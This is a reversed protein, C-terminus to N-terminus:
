ATPRPFNQICYWRRFRHPFHAHSKPLPRRLLFPQEQRPFPIAWQASVYFGSLHVRVKGLASDGGLSGSLSPGVLHVSSAYPNMLQLFSWLGGPTTKCITCLLTTALRDAGTQGASSNYVGFEPCLGMTETDRQPWTDRQYAEQPLRWTCFHTCHLKRRVLSSFLDSVM